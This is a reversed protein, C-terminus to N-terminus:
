ESRLAVMPDVRAARRAPLWCALGSVTLLLAPVVLFTLPDTPSIGFLLHRLMQTVVLAGVLGMLVGWGALILGQRLVLRLVDRQKAGLAIRIGVERTRQSVSYAIVGFLGSVALVLAVLGLVGLLVSSTRVPFFALTLHQELTAASTLALRADLEQTLTRIAALGQEPDSELHVVLTAQLPVSQHVCEFFAPQPDEGLTRYRGTPVVGVIERANEATAEGVYIRRGIPSQGPWFRVAAAENIIAVGPTGVRDTDLFERGQLLRSGMTAFYGPGVAYRQFFGFREPGKDLRELGYNGNSAETGLPLYGTWAAARVGPVERLRQLLRGYFADAEAPTYGFHNLDFGATVRDKVEFGPDFSRAQVLSRLCLTASVLLVLCLAMQVIILASSLRSRRAATGRAENKLDSTLDPRAGRFAPTLGFLISTTLSVVATFTLVRWDLMLDFRLPLNAPVLGMLLKAVGVALGLGILGAVGALLLSETFLQRLLRGQGAGLASRVAMEQRRASARALQLNAANACAILLVLLVAGMLIATFTRVYGRLPVPVMLSPTLIAGDEPVKGRVEEQFRHTLGTLDAAAQSESVGAKLRGLGIVSHSDTRTLWNADHNVAPVMMFPIWLDPAIGAMTSTFGEPAVGVVTLAVGNVTLARGVVQPDAALQRRWFSHSVVVVPHTGPTQDEEASFFRGLGPGIGCIEFYNGSVALTQVPEGVGNRSWSSFKPEADFAGLAAWSQNHQRLFAIEARSWSGFRKLESSAKPRLQWVQWLQDPKGVPPPRLLLTNIFSFITTNAAIGLALSLVAVATFGPNKLLQRLAFRFDNM